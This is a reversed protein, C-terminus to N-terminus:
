DGDDWLLSTMGNYAMGNKSIVIMVIEPSRSAEAEVEGHDGGPEFIVPIMMMMMRMMMMMLIMVMIMIMIM